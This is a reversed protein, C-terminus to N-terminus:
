RIGDNLDGILHAKRDFLEYIESLMTLTMTKNKIVAPQENSPQVPMENNQIKDIATNVLSPIHSVLRASVHQPDDKELYSITKFDLVTGGDVQPTVTHICIGVNGFDQKRMAILNSIGGRYHNPLGQHINLVHSSSMRDLIPTTVIPSGFLVLYNPMEVDKLVEVLSKSDYGSPIIKSDPPPPNGFLLNSYYRRLELHRTIVQEKAPDDFDFARRYYEMDTLGSSCQVLFKLDFTKALEAAVWNHQPEIGTVLGVSIM